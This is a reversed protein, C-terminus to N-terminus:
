DRDSQDTIPEAWVIAFSVEIAGEECAEECALCADCLEPHAVCIRDEDVKLVGQPCVDVCRGCVQCRWTYVHPQNGSPPLL